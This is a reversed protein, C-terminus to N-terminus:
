RCASVEETENLQEDENAERAGIGGAPENRCRQKRRGRSSKKKQSLLDRIKKIFFFTYNEDRIATATAVAGSRLAALLAPAPM